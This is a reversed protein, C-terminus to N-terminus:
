ARDEKIEYEMAAIEREVADLRAAMEWALAVELRLFAIEQRLANLAAGSASTRRTALYDTLNTHGHACLGLLLRSVRWADARCRSSCHRADRRRDILPDGCIVCTRSM